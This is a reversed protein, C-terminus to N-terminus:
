KMGVLAKAKEVAFSANEGYGDAGIEDAFKQTVCAGGILIKVKGKLGAEEVAEIVTKMYPITTTLLASMGILKAGEAKATSVFKEASINEGIDIVEFGVGKLMVGVLYKGLNHVDGKVTGLVVKGLSKREGAGLLLPELLEMGAQMTKAAMLVEPVYIEEEKFLKGVVEMGAFLGEELLRKVYEGHDLADRILGKIQSVEGMRVSEARKELRDVKEEGKKRRRNLDL